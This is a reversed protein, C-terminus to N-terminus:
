STLHIAETGGVLTQGVKAESQVEYEASNTKCLLIFPKSFYIAPLIKLLFCNVRLM